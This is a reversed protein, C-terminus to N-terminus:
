RWLATLVYIRSSRDPACPNLMLALALGIGLTALAVLAHAYLSVAIAHPSMAGVGPVTAIKGRM